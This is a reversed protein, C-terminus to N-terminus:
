LCNYSALSLRRNKKEKWKKFLVSFFSGRWLQLVSTNFLAFFLNGKLTNEDFTEYVLTEFYLTSFRDISGIFAPATEDRLM